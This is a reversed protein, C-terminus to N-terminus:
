GAGAAGHRDPRADAGAASRHRGGPNRGRPRARGTGPSRDEQRLRPQRGRPAQAGPGRPDSGTRTRRTEGGARRRRRQARRRRPRRGVDVGDHIGPGDRPRGRVAQQLAQHHQRAAPAPGVLVMHPGDRASARRGPPGRHAQHDVPHGPTMGQAEGNRPGTGSGAVPDLVTVAKVADLLERRRAHDSWAKRGAPEFLTRIEDESMAAGSLKRLVAGALAEASMAEAMAAPTYYAGLPMQPNPTAGKTKQGDTSPKTTAVLSEFMCSLVAPDIAHTGAQSRNEVATWEYRDLIDLLGRRDPSRYERDLRVPQDDGRPRTFLSGNLWPLDPRGGPRALDGRFLKLLAQHRGVGDGNGDGAAPAGRDLIDHPLVSREAMLRCFIIRLLHQLAAGTAAPRGDAAPAQVWDRMDSYFQKQLTETDLGDEIERVTRGFDFVRDVYKAAARTTGDCVPHWATTM